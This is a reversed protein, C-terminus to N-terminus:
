VIMTVFLPGDSTVAASMSSTNGDSIVTVDTVGTVAPPAVIVVDPVVSVAISSTASKGFPEEIVYVTTAVTLESATISTTFVAVTVSSRSLSEAVSVSM